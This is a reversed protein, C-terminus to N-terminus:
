EKAKGYDAPAEAVCASVNRPEAVYLGFAKRVAASDTHMRRLAEATTMAETEKYVADKWAWVERLPRPATDDSNKAKM